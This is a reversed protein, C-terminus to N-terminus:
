WKEDYIRTAVIPSTGDLSPDTDDPLAKGGYRKVLLSLLSQDHRHAVFDPYNENFSEDDNTLHPISALKEWKNVLEITQPSKVLFFIGSIIQFTDTYDPSDMDLFKFLDRKTYHKEQHAIRFGLFDDTDLYSLYEFFKDKHEPYFSCGADLYLLIDGDNIKELSKKVIIPKWWYYGAGKHDAFSRGHGILDEEGYVFTQKFWGSSRIQQDLRWKSSSFWKNGFTCFHLSKDHEM